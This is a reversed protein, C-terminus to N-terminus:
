PRADKAPHLCCIITGTFKKLSIHVCLLIQMLNPSIECTETTSLRPKRSFNQFMRWFYNKRFNRMIIEVSHPVFRSLKHSSYPAWIEALVWYVCHHVHPLSKLGFCGHFLAYYTGCWSQVFSTKRVFFTRVKRRRIKKKHNTLPRAEKCPYLCCIFTSPQIEECCNPRLIYIASPIAFNWLNRYQIAKTQM